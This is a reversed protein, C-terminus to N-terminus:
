KVKKFTLTVKDIKFDILEIKPIVIESKIKFPIHRYKGTGGFIDKLMEKYQYGPHERRIRWDLGEQSKIMSKIHEKNHQLQVAFPVYKSRHKQYGDQSLGLKTINDILYQNGKFKELYDIIDLMNEPKIENEGTSISISNVWKGDNELLSQIRNTTGLLEQYMEDTLIENTWGEPVLNVWVMDNELSTSIKRDNGEDIKFGYGSLNSSVIDEIEPIIDKHLFANLDYKAALIFMPDNETAPRRKTITGKGNKRKEKGIEETEWGGERTGTIYDGIKLEDKSIYIVPRDPGSTHGGKSKRDSLYINWNNFLPYLGRKLPTDPLDSIKIKTLNEKLKSPGGSGYYSHKGQTINKLSNWKSSLLDAAGLLKSILKNGLIYPLNKLIFKTDQSLEENVFENYRKIQM